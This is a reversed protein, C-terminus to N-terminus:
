YDEGRDGVEVMGLAAEVAGRRGENGVEPGGWFERMFAAIMDQGNTVGGSSWISLKKKEDEKERGGKGKDEGEGHGYIIDDRVFRKDVFELGPFQSRLMPLLPRPGTAKKLGPFLDPHATHLHLLPWIGTCITLIAHLNPLQSKLFTHISPSPHHDPEPGGILLIDLPPCSTLSDTVAIKAGATMKVMGQGTENIYHFECTLGKSAVEEPQHCAAWYVRCLVIYSDPAPPRMRVDLGSFIDIPGVDLFQIPYQTDLLVYGVKFPKETGTTTSAM